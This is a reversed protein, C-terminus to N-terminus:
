ATPHEPEWDPAIDRFPEFSRTPCTKPLYRKWTESLAVAWALHRDRVEPMAGSAILHDRGFQRFSDLMRYRTRETSTRRAQAKARYVAVDGEGIQVAANQDIAV